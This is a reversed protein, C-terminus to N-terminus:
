GTADGASTTVNVAIRLTTITSQDAVIGGNEGRPPIPQDYHHRDNAYSDDSRM